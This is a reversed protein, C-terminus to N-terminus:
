STVRTPKIGQQVVENKLSAVEERLRTLEGVLTQTQTQIEVAMASATLTDAPTEAVGELSGVVRGFIDAYQQGSGFLERAVTLYSEAYSPLREIAAFDGGLANRATREFQQQAVDLQAQPSLASLSGVQLSRTFDILTSLGRIVREEASRTREITLALERQALTTEAIGRILDDELRGTMNDFATLLRLQDEALGSMFGELQAALSQWALDTLGLAGMQPAIQEFSRIIERAQVLSGRGSNQDVADRAQTVFAERQEGIVRTFISQVRPNNGFLSLSSQLERPAMGRATAELQLDTLRSTLRLSEPSIGAAEAARQNQLLNNIVDIFGTGQAERVARGLEMERQRIQALRLNEVARTVEATTGGLDELRKRMADVANAAENQQSIYEALIPNGRGQAELMRLTNGFERDRAIQMKRIEEDRKQMLIDTALGLEDSKLIANNYTEALAEMQREYESTQKILPRYVENLFRFNEELTELNSSARIVSAELSDINAVTDKLFGFIVESARDALAQMGAEDNGFDQTQGLAHLRAGTRGVELSIAGGPRYGTIREIERAQDLLVNAMRTAADRNEQSFKAGSFGHERLSLEDFNIDSAQSKESPRQGPLFSGLLGVLIAAPGLIPALSAGLAGLMGMTGLGAAMGMGGGLATVAGGIGGRQLGSYIGFAGAGIGGIGGIVSAADMGFLQGGTGFLGPTPPGMGGPGLAGGFLYSTAGGLGGLSTLMNGGGFIGGGSATGGAKNAGGGFFGGLSGLSSLLSGGGGNISSIGSLATGLTGRTGGFLSNLIPNLIALKAIQQIIESMVAKMIDKFSLARLTGNAFAETISNGIREFAQEGVNAIANFSNEIQTNQQRVSVAQRSLREAETILSRDTVGASILRARERLAAVEQERSNVNTGILRGEQELLQIEERRENISTRAAELAAEAAKAATLIPILRNVEEAYRGIANGQADVERVASELAKTYAEQEIEARRGAAGSVRYANAVRLTAATQQNTNAIFRAMSREAAAMVATRTREIEAATATRRASEQTAKELERLRQALQGAMGEADGAAETQDNLTRFFRTLQDTAGAAGRETEQFQKILADLAARERTADPSTVGQLATRRSQATAFIEAGTAGEGFALGRGIQGTSRASRLLQEEAARRRSAEPAMAVFNPAPPPTPLNENQPGGLGSLTRLLAIAEQLRFNYQRIKDESKAIDEQQKFFANDPMARLTEALGQADAQLRRFIDGRLGTGGGLANLEQRFVELQAVINRVATPTQGISEIFQRYRTSFDRFPDNEALASGLGFMGSVPGGENRAIELNSTIRARNTGAAIAAQHERRLGALRAEEAAIETRINSITAEVALRQAARFENGAQQFRNVLRDFSNELERNAQVTGRTISEQAEGIEAGLREINASSRRLNEQLNTSFQTIENRGSRTAISVAAIGGALLALIGIAPAAAPVLTTIGLLGAIGLVGMRAAVAGIAAGLINLNNAVTLSIDGFTEMTGSERALTLLERLQDVISIVARGFGGQELSQVTQTFANGLRGFAASISQSTRELAETGGSMVAIQRAFEAAYRQVDLTGREMRDSVNSYAGDVREVAAQLAAMAIPLRDGMQLRVEEAMFKGKSMSQELARIIGMADASSVGFNRSATALQTFVDRTENGSFGAGQMAVSLRAFSNGVEAVNFGIRNGEAFLFRMNNNFDVVGASVTRLTNTFRELNMMAVVIERLGLAGAMASLAAQTSFVVRSFGGLSANAAGFSASITRANNNLTSLLGNQTTIANRSRDIAQNFAIQARTAEVSRVGFQRVIGEYQALAAANQRIIPASQEPTLQRNARNDVNQVTTARSGIARELAIAATLASRSTAAEARSAAITERSLRQTNVIRQQVLTNGDKLNNNLNRMARDYQINASAAQRATVNEAQMARLYRDLSRMAQDRLGTQVGMALNSQRISRDLNEYRQKAQDVTRMQRAITADLKSAQTTSEKANRTAAVAAQNNAQNVKTAVGSVKKEIEGAKTALAELQRMAAAVSTVDVKVALNALSDSV